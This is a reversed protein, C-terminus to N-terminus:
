LPVRVVGCFKWLIKKPKPLNQKWEVFIYIVRCIYFYNEVVCINKFFDEEPTFSSM